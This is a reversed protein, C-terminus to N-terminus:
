AALRLEQEWLADFSSDHKAARLRLVAEAGAYTWNRMGAQKCRAGVLTKCQAEVQGSGIPLGLERYHPYDIRSLNHELYTKLEQLAERKAPSRVKALEARVLELAANGDGQWLKDKLQNSWEKAEETGEGRLINAAKHVHEALHYWDLIQVASPFYQAALRWLWHSGDAIFARLPANAYGVARAMLLLVWAVEDVPLFRARSQRAIMNGAANETTVTAVRIEHWEGETHVTTGDAFVCAKAPTQESEPLPAQREKIRQRLEDEQHLIRQGAAEAVDRVTEKALPVAYDEKLNDRAEEFSGLQAALRSVVKALPWSVRHELFCLVEDHPYCEHHCDECRWRPRHYVVDGLTTVVRSPVRGKNRMPVGCQCCCPRQVALDAAAAWKELLGQAMKLMGQRLCTEAQQFDLLQDPLQEILQELEPLIERHLKELLTQKVTTTTKPTSM